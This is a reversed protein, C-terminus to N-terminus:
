VKKRPYAFFGLEATLEGLRARLAARDVTAVPMAAGPAGSLAAVIQDREDELERVKARTEIAEAAENQKKRARVDDQLSKEVQDVGAKIEPFREAAFRLFQGFEYIHFDQDSGVQFEEILEPRPGLKRGRHIWLWDEKADDSIFIIPRKDAKLPQCEIALIRDSKECRRRPRSGPIVSCPM